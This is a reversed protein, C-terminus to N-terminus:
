YVDRHYRHSDTLRQVKQEGLMNVLTKHVGLGLGDYSGCVYIHGGDNFVREVIDTHQQLAQQVYLPSTDCRSFVRFVSTDARSLLSLPVVKDVIDDTVPHREGYFVYVPGTHGIETLHMWQARLGALGSGAAILLVPKNDADFHCLPNVHLRASVADGPQLEGTLWGSALGPEGNDKIARRVILKFQREADTSAISYSRLANASNNHPQVELIDGAKWIAIDSSAKLDIEFLQNTDGSNLQRITKITLSSLPKSSASSGLAAADEGLQHDLRVLTEDATAGADTLRKDLMEGFACFHPYSSDGLAIVEYHLGSLLAQQRNLRTLARFFSRGNDPPEGHGYTSVVFIVKRFSSLKEPSFASLPFANTHHEAAIKEALSKATGTQSAYTVLLDRDAGTFLYRGKHRWFLWGVWLVYIVVLACALLLRHSETM